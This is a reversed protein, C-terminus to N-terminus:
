RPAPLENGDDLMEVCGAGPVGRNIADAQSLEAACRALLDDDTIQARAAAVEAQDVLRVLNSM